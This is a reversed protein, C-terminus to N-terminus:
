SLSLGQSPLQNRKGDLQRQDLDLASPMKSKLIWNWRATPRQRLHFSEQFLVENVERLEILAAEVQATSQSIQVPLRRLQRGATLLELVGQISDSAKPVM